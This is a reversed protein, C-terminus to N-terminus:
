KLLKYNEIYDFGLLGKKLDMELTKFTDYNIRSTYREPLLVSVLVSDKMYYVKPNNRRIGRRSGSKYQVIREIPYTQKSVVESRGMFNLGLLAGNILNGCLVTSGLFTLAVIMFMIGKGKIGKLKKYSKPDTLKMKAIVYIGTLVGCLLVSSWYLTDNYFTRDDFLFVLLHGLGGVLWLLRYNLGKKKSKKKTM